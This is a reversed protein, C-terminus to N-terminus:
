LPRIPLTVFATMGVALERERNDCRVRLEFTRIDRKSRSVDRQTAFDADVARYIITGPLERGSPLRVTVADGLRVSDVYTEEVDVRVWLDDPNILTVIAQGPTIVEGQRAALVDVVGPIPARITTYGLIVQAKQTQADAAAAQRQAAAVAAERVAVQDANAEALRLAAEAAITQQRAAALKARAAAETTRAADFEAASNAGKENLTKAREFALRDNEEDAASAAEQARAADLNARAQAIQAETQARQYQLDAQAQAIQAGAQAASDRYYAVDAEYEPPQLVAITQGAAVVQGQNVALDGIRGSIQSSVIVDDTTVIGTLELRRPRPWFVSALVLAAAVGGLILVRRSKVADRHPGCFPTVVPFL